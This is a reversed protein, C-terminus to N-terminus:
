KDLESQFIRVVKAYQKFTNFAMHETIEPLTDQLSKFAGPLKNLSEKIAQIVEARHEILFIFPDKKMMAGKKLSKRNPYQM